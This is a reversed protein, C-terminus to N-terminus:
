TNRSTRTSPLRQLTSKRVHKWHQTYNNVVDFFHNLDGGTKDQMNVEIDSSASYGPIM